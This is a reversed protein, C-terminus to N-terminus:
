AGKCALTVQPRERAVDGLWAALDDALAQAAARTAVVSGRADATPAPKEIKFARKALPTDGQPPLLSARVELIVKSSQSTDFRQELEDLALRLRCGPGSFDPQGFIIRQQLARELLEAPAAVWRSETYTRRRLDDAYALRYLQAPSELWSSAKVNVAVLHFGPSTWALSHSGLDYSAIEAQRPPNGVCGALLFVSLVLIIKRM